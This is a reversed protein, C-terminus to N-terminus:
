EKTESQNILAFILTSLQPNIASTRAVLFLNRIEPKGRQHSMITFKIPDILIHYREQFFITERTVRMTLKKLANNYQPLGRCLLRFRKFNKLFKWKKAKVLYIRAISELQYKKEIWM